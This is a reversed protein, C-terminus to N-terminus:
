AYRRKVMRIFQIAKKKKAESVWDYKSVIEKSLYSKAEEFNSFDNLKNLTEDFVNKENGFLENLAFMRENLSMSKTLDTIPRASLKGSIDNSDEIDFIEAFQNAAQQPIPIGSVKAKIEEVVPKPNSEAVPEAVIEKVPEEVVPKPAEIKEVIKEKVVEPKTEVKEEEKKEVVPPVYTMPKSTEEVKPQELLISKLKQTYNLLLDRELQNYQDGDDELNKLLVEMKNLLLKAKDIKM